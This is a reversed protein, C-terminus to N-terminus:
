NIQVFSAAMMADVRYDYHKGQPITAQLFASGQTFADQNLNTLSLTSTLEVKDVNYEHRLLLKQQDYGSDDRYGGDHSLMVDARLRQQDVQTPSLRVARVMM